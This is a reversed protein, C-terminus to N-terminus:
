LKGYGIVNIRIIKSIWNKNTSLIKPLVKWDFEYKKEYVIHIIVETQLLNYKSYIYLFIIDVM